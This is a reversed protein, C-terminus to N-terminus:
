CFRDLAFKPLLKSPVNPATSPALIHRSKEPQMPATASPIASAKRKVQDLHCASLLSIDTINNNTDKQHTTDFLHSNTPTDYDVGQLEGKKYSRRLRHIISDGMKMKEKQQDKNKKEDTNQDGDKDGGSEPRWVEIVTISARLKAKAKAATFSNHPVPGDQYLSSYKLLDDCQLTKAVVWILFDAFAWDEHLGVAKSITVLRGGKWKKVNPDSFPQFRIKCFIGDGDNYASAGWDGFVPHEMESQSDSLDAM